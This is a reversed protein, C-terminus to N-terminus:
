YFLKEAEELCITEWKGSANKRAFGELEGVQQGTVICKGRYKNRILGAANAKALFVQQSSLMQEAEAIEAELERFSETDRATCGLRTKAQNLWKLSIMSFKRM